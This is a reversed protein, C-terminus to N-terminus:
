VSCEFFGCVVFVFDLFLGSIEWVFGLLVFVVCVLTSPTGLSLNLFLIAFLEFFM